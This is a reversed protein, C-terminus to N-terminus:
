VLPLTGKVHSQLDFPAKRTRPARELLQTTPDDLASQKREAEEEAANHTGEAHRILHLTKNGACEAAKEDDPLLLVLDSTACPLLLALCLNQASWWM